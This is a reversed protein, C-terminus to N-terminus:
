RLERELNAREEAQEKIRKDIVRTDGLGHM